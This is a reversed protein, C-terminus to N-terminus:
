ATVKEPETSKVNVTDATKGKKKGKNNATNTILGALQTLPQSVNGDSGGSGNGKSKNMLGNLLGPIDVGFAEMSTVLQVLNKPIIGLPNAGNGDGGLNVWKVDGIKMSEAIQPLVASLKTVISEVVQQSLVEPSIQNQALVKKELGEAEADLKARIGDAEAMMEERKADAIVKIRQSEAQANM